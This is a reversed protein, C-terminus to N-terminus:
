NFYSPFLTRVSPLASAQRLEQHSTIYMSEPISSMMSPSAAVYSYNSADQCQFPNRPSVPVEQVIERYKQVPVQSAVPSSPVSMRSPSPAVEMIPYFNNKPELRRRKNQEQACAQVSSTDTEILYTLRKKQPAKFAAKPDHMVLHLQKQLDEIEQEVKKRAETKSCKSLKM